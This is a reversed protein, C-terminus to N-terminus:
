QEIRGTVKIPYAWDERGMAWAITDFVWAQATILFEPLGWRTDILDLSDASPNCLVVPVVGFWGKHTYNSM